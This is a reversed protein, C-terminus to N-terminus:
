SRGGLRQGLLELRAVTQRTLYYDGVLVENASREAIRRGEVEARARLETQIKAGQISLVADLNSGRGELAQRALLAREELRRAKRLALVSAIGAGASFGVLITVWARM